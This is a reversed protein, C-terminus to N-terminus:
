HLRQAFGRVEGSPLVRSRAASVSSGRRGGVGRLGAVAATGHDIAPSGTQLSDDANLLPDTLADGVGQGSATQWAPLTTPFATNFRWSPSGATCHFLDNSEQWSTPAWNIQLYIAPADTVVDNRVGLTGATREVVIGAGGPAAITNNAVIFDEATPRSPDNNVHIGATSVGHVRNYAIVTTGATTEYPYWSVGFYGRGAGDITNGEIRNQHYRVTVGSNQFNTITNGRITSDISDDYIGHCVFDAVPDCHLGTNRITRATVTHHAQFGAPPSGGSSYYRNFVIGNGGIQDVTVHDLTWSADRDVSAVDGTVSDPGTVGDPTIDVAVDSGTVDGAPPQTRDATADMPTGLEGQCAVATSAALLVLSWRRAVTARRAQGDSGRAPGYPMREM